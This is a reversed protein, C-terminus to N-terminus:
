AWGRVLRADLLTVATKDVAVVHYRVRGLLRIFTVVADFRPVPQFRVCLVSVRIRADVVPQLAEYEGGVVDLKLLDIADHGLESMVSELSRCGAASLRRGDAPDAISRSAEGGRQPAHVRQQGDVSTFRYPLLTVGRTAARAREMYRAAESSPDFAYVHCGFRQTLEFEFSADGEVCGCYCIWSSQPLHVPVVYGRNTTGLRKLNPCPVVDIARALRRWDRRARVRGPVSLPNLSGATRRVVRRLVGSGEQL